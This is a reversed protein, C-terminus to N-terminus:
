EYAKVIGEETCYDSKLIDSVFEGGTELIDIVAMPQITWLKM